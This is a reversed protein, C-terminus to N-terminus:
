ATVPVGISARWEENLGDMDFGYVKELAEDYGAGEGFTDLLTLMKDQGYTDILYTVIYYSQAYALYSQNAYASFPSALSRVSFLTGTDRANEFVMVFSAGLEGEGFMALGEDLWTPIDGLPNFIIQHVVLHTLEHAITSKGWALDSASTGIGIAITSFRPFAVGGTWEQAYILAGRLDAASAYIYLKVPSELEAGVTDALRSLAQQTAEMLEQGFENDGEYWYLTVMGEVLRNWSYRNDEVMVNQPLSSAVQGTIDTVTWWYEIRTGPPLGGTTRMDWTWVADVSTATTVPVYVESVVRAHEQRNVIYSLRVDIIDAGSKATMTFDISLPFNVTASTATVVPETTAQIGPVLMQIMIIALVLLIIIRKKM